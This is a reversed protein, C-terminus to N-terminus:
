EHDKERKEKRAESIFDVLDRAEDMSLVDKGFIATINLNEEFFIQLEQFEERWVLATDTGKFKPHMVEAGQMRKCLGQMHGVYLLLTAIAANLRMNEEETITKMTFSVM